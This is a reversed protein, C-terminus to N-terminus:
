SLKLWEWQNNVFCLAQCQDDWSGLNFSKIMNDDKQFHFEDRLHVHGTIIADFHREGYVKQAHQHIVQKIREEDRKFNTYNRSTRSAWEGIAAVLFGPLGLIIWTMVWTRLLWRLFIYGRDEPDMQDGHEVRLVTDDFMFLEPGAYVKAGVQGQWFNQLHLDHNGEFYHIKGGSKTFNKLQDVLPRYKDIFYEHAGLWLDFIDGNLFLTDEPTLSVLFRLLVQAKPDQMGTLHLDSIFFVRKM